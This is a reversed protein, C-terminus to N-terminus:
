TVRVLLPAGLPAVVGGERPALLPVVPRPIGFGGFVGAVVVAHFPLLWILVFLGWTFGSRGAAAVPPTVVATTMGAARGTAHCQTTRPPAPVAGRGRGAGPCRHPAPHRGRAPERAGLPHAARPRCGLTGRARHRTVRRDLPPPHAPAM